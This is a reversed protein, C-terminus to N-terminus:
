KNETLPSKVPTESIMEYVSDSDESMDVMAKKNIFNMIDQCGKM